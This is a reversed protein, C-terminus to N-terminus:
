QLRANNAIPSFKEGLCFEELCAYSVGFVVKNYNIDIEEQEVQFGSFVIKHFGIPTVQWNRHRALRSPSYISGPTM